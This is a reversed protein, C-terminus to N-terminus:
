GGVPRTPSQYELWFDPEAARRHDKWWGWWGLVGFVVTLFLNPYAGAVFASVGTGIAGIGNSLHLVKMRGTHTAYAYGSLVVFSGLWGLLDAPSM